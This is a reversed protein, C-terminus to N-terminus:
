KNPILVVKAVPTEKGAPLNSLDLGNVDVYIKFTTWEDASTKDVSLSSKWTGGIGTYPTVAIELAMSYGTRMGMTTTGTLSHKGGPCKPDRLLRVVNHGMDVLLKDGPCPEGSPPEPPPCLSLIPWHLDGQQKPCLNAADTRPGTVQLLGQVHVRDGLHFQGQPGIQENLSDAGVLNYVRGDQAKLLIANGSGKELAGIQEFCLALRVDKTDIWCASKLPYGLPLGDADRCADNLGCKYFPWSVLVMGDHGAGDCAVVVGCRGGRLDCDKPLTDDLLIVCAGQVLGSTGDPVTTEGSPTKESEPSPTTPSVPAPQVRIEGAKAYGGTKTYSVGRVYVQYTGAALPGVSATAQWMTKIPNSITTQGNEAGPLLMDINISTGQVNVKLKDPPCNDPWTGALKLTLTDQSTPNTPIVSLTYTDDAAGITSLSAVVLLVLGTRYVAQRKM